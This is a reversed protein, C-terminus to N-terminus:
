KEMMKKLKHLAKAKRSHVTMRHTGTSQAYKRETMGEFYIAQLLDREGKPLQALCCRLRDAMAHGIAIDEVSASTMDPIMDEGLLEDTDLADYSVVGHREDKEELAKSHRRTRYYALYVERTVAVLTDHVKIQYKREEAM